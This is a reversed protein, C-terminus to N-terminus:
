GGWIMWLAIAMASGGTWYDAKALKLQRYSSRGRGDGYARAEIALTLQEARQITTMFLPVVVPIYAFLRRPLSMAAIDYGRAKQALLIRDMEELITPIFRIAITIMLSVQEVPVRLRSLPSMLKELGQALSLPKTTLTLVSALMIMLAIRWVVTIGAEIGDMTLTIVSWTWIVHDGQTFFANYLLTFTLIFWVPKLTKLYVPLPIRSLLVCVLVLVTALAFGLLTALRLFGFMIMMLSVLKTRPDLRHMLSEKAMFQGFLINKQM